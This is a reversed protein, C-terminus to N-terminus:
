YTHELGRLIYDPNVCSLTFLIRANSGHGIPYPGHSPPLPLCFRSHGILLGTESPCHCVHSDGKLVQLITEDSRGNLEWDSERADVGTLDTSRM